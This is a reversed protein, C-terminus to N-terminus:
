PEKSALDPPESPQDLESGFGHMRLAWQLGVLLGKIAPLLLLCLVVTLPLWIMAHVWAEPAWTQEMYLVGGVVIHGVIFMTFYAPADDARHHHLAENCHGCREVTKLYSGFLSGIGCRPCRLLAGRLMASQVSRAKAARQTRESAASSTVEITMRDNAMAAVGADLSSFSANPATAAQEPRVVM